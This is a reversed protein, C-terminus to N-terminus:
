GIKIIEIHHTLGDYLLLKGSLNPTIGTIIKLAELAQINGMIGPLMGLVGGEVCSDGDLRNTRSDSGAPFIDSYGASGNHNLVAVQGEFRFLGGYVLPILLEKSFKDLIRRTDINDTADIIVDARALLSEGNEENLYEGRTNIEVNLNIKKLVEAAVNVKLRDVDLDGYLPQRHINSIEVRDGDIILLTGVGAATLAQSAPCGLGGMGVVAVTAETLKRQGIIGLEPLVTQRAYRSFDKRSSQFEAWAQVGGLLSFANDLDNKIIMGETILGYQCILVVTEGENSAIDEESVPEADLGELPYRQRLEDPRVDLANFSKGEDLWSQLEEPTIIM